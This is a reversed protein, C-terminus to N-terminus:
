SSKDSIALACTALYHLREGIKITVQGGGGPDIRAM